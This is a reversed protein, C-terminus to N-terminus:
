MISSRSLKAAVQDRFAQSKEYRPDSMDRQMESFDRYVDGAAPTGRANQLEPESGNAQEYRAVLNKLAATQEALPTGTTQKNYADIEAQTLGGGKAWEVIEGFRQENVGAANFATQRALANRANVADVHDAVMEETIGKAKLAALTEPKLKGENEAYEQQLKAYDFGQAALAESTNETAGGPPPAAPATEPTKPPTGLKSELAAYSKALDDVRVAGKEADWFKEPIHDPRTPHSNDSTSTTNTPTNITVAEGSM